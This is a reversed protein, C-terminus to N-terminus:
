YERRAFLPFESRPTWVTEAGGVLADFLILGFRVKTTQFNKIRAQLARYVVVTTAVYLVLIFDHNEWERWMEEYRSKGKISNELEVAIRKGSRFLVIGDPIKKFAHIKMAKEPIWTADFVSCLRLRTESVMSDHTFTSLSVKRKQRVEFPSVGRVVRLGNISLRVVKPKGSLSLVEYKLLRLNVLKRIRRSAGRFSGGFFYKSVTKLELFQEEFISRMLDEDRKQIVSRM